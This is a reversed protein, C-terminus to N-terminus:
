PIQNEVFSKLIENKDAWKLSTKTVNWEIWHIAELCM